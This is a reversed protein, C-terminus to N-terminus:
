QSNPYRCYVYKVKTQNKTRRKSEKKRNSLLKFLKMISVFSIDRGALEFNSSPKLCGKKSKCNDKKGPTGILMSIPTLDKSLTLFLNINLEANLSIFLVVKWKFIGTSLCIGQSFHIFKHKSRELKQSLILIFKAINVLIFRLPAQLKLFINVNLHLM